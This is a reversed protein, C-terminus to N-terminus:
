IAVFRRVEAHQEQQALWRDFRQQRMSLQQQATMAYHPDHGEVLLLTFGQQSTFPGQLSGPRASVISKQQPPVFAVPLWGLDGCGQQQCQSRPKSLLSRAIAFFSAGRRYQAEVKRVQASSSVVIRALRVAPVTTRMERTVQYMVKQQLADERTMEKFDSPTMGLERAYIRLVPTSAHFRSKFVAAWQTAFEQNSVSIHHRAAYERILEDNILTNLVTRKLQTCLSAYIKAQCVDIGGTGEETTYRKYRVQKAYTSLSIAHGNVSAAAKGSSSSVSDCATVTLCLSLLGFGLFSRRL